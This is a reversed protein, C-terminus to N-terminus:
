EAEEPNLVKLGRRDCEEEIAERKRGGVGSGIRVAWTDPNLRKVEDPRHVLRERYGSPHVGREEAPTRKGDCPVAPKGKRHLRQKSQRGKPRRWKDKLRKFRRHHQRKHRNM